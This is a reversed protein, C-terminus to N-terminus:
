GQELGEAHGRLRRKLGPLGACDPDRLNARQGACVLAIRITALNPDWAPNAPKQRACPADFLTTLDILDPHAIQGTVKVTVM